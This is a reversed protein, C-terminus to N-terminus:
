QWLLASAFVSCLNSLLPPSGKTRGKYWCHCSTHLQTKGLANQSLATQKLVMKTYAILVYQIYEYHKFHSNSLFTTPTLYLKM